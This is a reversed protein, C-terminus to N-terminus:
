SSVSVRSACVDVKKCPRNTKTKLTGRKEVLPLFCIQPRYENIKDTGIRIIWNPIWNLAVHRVM